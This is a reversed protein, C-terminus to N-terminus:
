NYNKTPRIHIDLYKIDDMGRHMNTCATSRASSAPPQVEDLECLVLKLKCGLAVNQNSPPSKMQHSEQFIEWCINRIIAAVSAAQLRQISLHMYVTIFM